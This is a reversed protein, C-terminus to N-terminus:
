YNAMDRCKPLSKIMEEETSKDEYIGRHSIFQIGIVPCALALM